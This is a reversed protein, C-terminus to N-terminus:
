LVVKRRQRSEREDVRMKETFDREKQEQKAAEEQKRIQTPTMEGYRDM